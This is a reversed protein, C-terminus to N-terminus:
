AAIGAADSLRYSTPPFRRGLVQLVVRVKGGGPDAALIRGLCRISDSEMGCFAIAMAQRDRDQGVAGM